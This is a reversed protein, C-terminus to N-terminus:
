GPTLGFPWKSGHALAEAIGADDGQFGARGAVTKGIGFQPPVVDANVGPRRRLLTTTVRPGSSVSRPSWRRRRGSSRRGLPALIETLRYLRM